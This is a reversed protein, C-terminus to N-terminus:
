YRPPPEGNANGVPFTGSMSLHGPSCTTITCYYQYTGEASLPVTRSFVAADPPVTVDVVINGDDEQMVRGTLRSIM